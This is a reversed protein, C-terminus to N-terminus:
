GRHGRSMYTQVWKHIFEDSLSRGDRMRTPIDNAGREFEAADNMQADTVERPQIMFVRVLNSDTKGEYSFIKGILPLSGLVPIRNSHSTNTNRTYGGILLSKGQPVRAVTSIITRGIIPLGDVELKQSNEENGDEINLVLEIQNSTGFRPLVSIMTGYTVTELSSNREGILKTYFSRNNDFIAPINEQTLIVPRSIVSARNKQELAQVNAIFRMGDLTSLSTSGNFSMSVKSGINVGGSWEVGLNDLDTKNIDIIWLSLEIHRKPLDLSNVLKRVFEVQSSTGKVLLTNNGPYATIRINDETTWMVPTTSNKTRTELKDDKVDPLPPMRLINVQEADSSITSIEKKKNNGNENLLETIITSIGPITIKENRLEYTRDTVFTNVLHIVGIKERGIEIGDSNRDLMKAANTILDVYIPPGSVYYTGKNGGKIKYKDNYIGTSKLFSNFDNLTINQISVLSSKMESSDYIYVVNNDSYWILGMKQSLIEITNFPDNISFKGNIQKRAALKSVLVGKGTSSVVTEFFTKLDEKNAVYLNESKAAGSMITSLYVFFYYIIRIAYLKRLKRKSNIM